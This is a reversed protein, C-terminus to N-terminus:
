ELIAEFTPADTLDMEAQDLLEIKYSQSGVRLEWFRDIPQLYVLGSFFGDSDTTAITEFAYKQFIGSNIWGAEFPRMRITQGSIVSNSDYIFGELNVLTPTTPDALAADFTVAILDLLPRAEDDSTTLFSKIQILSRNNVILTAANTNIDAATSAESVTGNSTAWASGNWWKDTGDLVIVHKISTSAPTTSTEAFAILDTARIQTNTQITPSSTSYNTDGAYTITLDDVSMLDADISQEDFHVKMTVQTEGSVDPFAGINAAIDAEVSSQAFSGDSSAWASGNWYFFGGGGVDLSFQPANSDTSTFASMASITGLNDDNHDFVPLTANTEVYKDDPVTYGPTYGSTHQVANYLIVDDFSADAINYPATQAGVSLLDANGARTWSGASNLTGHLVGDIFVRINGSGTSDFNLEFEYEVGSTPNWASGIATALYVDIGSSDAVTMRLTDGSPSHTLVMRDKTDSNNHLGIININSVPGTTYDPTYLFKIAGVTTVGAINTNNYNVGKQLEGTCVLKGGSIAPTGNVTGTFSGSVAWDLEDDATYKAALQAGADAQDLQRMLGGTFEIEGADFTFGTSFTFPENFTLSASTLLVLQAMGGTVEVNDTDFTYNSPTTYPFNTTSSM